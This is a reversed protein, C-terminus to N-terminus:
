KGVAKEGYKRQTHALLVRPIKFECVAKLAARSSAARRRCFLTSGMEGRFASSATSKRHSILVYLPSWLNLVTFNVVERLYIM